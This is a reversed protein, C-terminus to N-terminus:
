IKKSEIHLRNIDQNENLIQLLLNQDLLDFVNNKDSKNIWTNIVKDILLFDVYTDITFRLDSYDVKNEYSFVKFDGSEYMFPTVHEKDKDSVNTHSLIIEPKFIEIDFGKPFTRKITNTGYDISNDTKMISLINIIDPSYILPCDGTIRIVYEPNLKKVLFKYRSFVNLPDGRFCEIQNTVCLNFLPEDETNTSTAVIVKYEDNIIKKIREIVHILVPHGAISLSSKFPLRQSGNRVQVIILNM